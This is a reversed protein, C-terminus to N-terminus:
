IARIQSIHCVLLNQTNSHDHDPGNHRYLKDDYGDGDGDDADDDDGDHHGAQQVVIHDVM